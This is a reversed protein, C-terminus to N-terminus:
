TLNLPVPTSGAGVGGALWDAAERRLWVMPWVLSWHLCAGPHLAHFSVESHASFRRCIVSSHSAPQNTCYLVTCFVEPVRIFDDVDGTM